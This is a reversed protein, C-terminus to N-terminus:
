TPDWRSKYLEPLILLARLELVNLFMTLIPPTYMFYMTFLSAEIDRQYIVILSM